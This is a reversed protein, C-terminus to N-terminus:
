LTTPSYVALPQPLGPLLVAWAISRLTGSVTLVGCAMNNMQNDPFTSAKQMWTNTGPTYRLAHQFDSGATDATRGGMTYFNGNTPFYVGVARVLPTPM